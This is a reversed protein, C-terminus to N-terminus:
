PGTKGTCADRMSRALGKSTSTTIGKRDCQPFQGHQDDVM